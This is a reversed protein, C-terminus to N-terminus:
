CCFSFLYFNNPKILSFEEEQPEKVKIIMDSQLFVEKASSLITAGSNQYMENTFGSGLGANNEIFVNHGMKVLEDVGSPVLSVRSENFKIEKPVGIIM